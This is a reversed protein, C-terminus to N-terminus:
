ILEVIMGNLSIGVRESRSPPHKPGHCRDILATHERGLRDQYRYVLTNGHLIETAKIHGRSMIVYDDAMCGNIQISVIERGIYWMSKLAKAQLRGRKSMRRALFVLAILGVLILYTLALLPALDKM